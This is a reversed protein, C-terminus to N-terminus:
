CRCDGSRWEDVRAEEPDGRADVEEPIESRAIASSCDVVMRRSLFEWTASRVESDGLLESTFLCSARLTGSGCSLLRRASRWAEAQSGQVGLAIFRM